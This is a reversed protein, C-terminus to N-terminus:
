THEKVTKPTDLLDDLLELVRDHHSYAVAHGANEVVGHVANPNWESLTEKGSIPIIEDDRGWIAIVPPGNKSIARHADELTDNLIGRLSQLIAARFGRHDLEAMQKDVIGPIASPVGREAELAQRYSRGYWAMMLWSGFWKHNAVLNAIPGLDHGAGAPALLVIQRLRQPSKAAYATAIAGGMSYGLLTIDGDINQADLLEELQRTFITADQVGPLNDSAGRGYLDYTLVRFGMRVLGDVIPAWVFSPTTLGHVCVAVPGTDPGHWTFHTVGRSLRVNDGTTMAQRAQARSKRFRDVLYPLAAIVALCSFVWTM